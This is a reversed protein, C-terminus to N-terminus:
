NFIGYFLITDANPTTGEVEVLVMPTKGPEQLIEAKAGKLKQNQTWTLLLQAAQKILGNTEWDSDYLRSTNPISVYEVCNM